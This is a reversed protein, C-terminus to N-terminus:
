LNILFATSMMEKWREFVRLELIVPWIRGFNSSTRSKIGTVKIFVSNMTVSFLHLGWKGWEFDIHCELAFLETTFLGVQGLNSSMRSKIGTRTVQLNSLSRILPWQSFAPVCNQGNYTLPLKRNGHYGCNQDSRGWFRICGKGWGLSAVSLIQSFNALQDQLYLQEFTHVVVVVSSPAKSYYLSVKHAKPEPSSILSSWCFCFFYLIWMDVRKEPKQHLFM